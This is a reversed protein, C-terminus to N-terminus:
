GNLRDVVVEVSRYGKLFINKKAQTTYIKMQILAVAELTGGTLLVNFVSYTPLIHHSKASYIM